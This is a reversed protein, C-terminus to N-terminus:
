ADGDSGGAAVYAADPLATLSVRRRRLHLRTAREARRADGALVAEAVACLEQFQHAHQTPTIFAQFQFRLLSIQLHPMMRALERNGGIEILAHYFRRRESLFDLTEGTHEYPVLREYAAQMQARCGPADIRRAALKAALGTLSELVVLTDRVEERTQARVVAGRNRTLTIVGEGSLRKFAERVPGRSVGHERTLDAEVLRQGPLYRGTEVGHKIAELVRASSGKQTPAASQGAVANM